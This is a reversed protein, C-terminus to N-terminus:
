SALQRTGDTRTADRPGEAASVRVMPLLRVVENRDCLTHDPALTAASGAAIGWRTAEELNLGRELGYVVGAVLSDGAGVASVVPVIPAHYLLAPPEDRVLLAGAPGLSVLVAGTPGLALLARAAAIIATETALAGRCHRRLENLSPKLLFAGHRAALDLAPGSTDVVVHAGAEEAAAMVDVIHGAGVGSPLSGSIVAWAGPVVIRRVAAVCSSLEADTVPQGPLVFRFYRGTATERVALSERTTGAVAVPEVATGEDTLLDRLLAGTSGGCPFVAPADVGLRRLARSVNIGGGGATLETDTCHLKREPEVLETSAWVDLAPNLTVTVIPM